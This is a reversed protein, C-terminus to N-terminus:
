GSARVREGPRLAQMNSVAVQEGPQLGSIVQTVDNNSPGITIQQLSARGDKIVFVEPALESDIVALSPIVLSGHVPELVSVDTEAGIPILEDASNPFTVIVTGDVGGNSARPDIAVVSGTRSVNPLGPFTVVARESTRVFQMDTLPLGFSVDLQHIESIQILPKGDQVLQGVTAGVSVVRGAVPSTLVATNGRALAIEDQLVAIESRIQTDTVLDEASSGSGIVGLEHQDVVLQAQLTGVASEVAQADLSVLAQGPRVAEGATVDVATVSVPGIPFFQSGTIAYTEGPIASVTGIGGTSGTFSGLRATATAVSPPRDRIWIAAGGGIVVILVM